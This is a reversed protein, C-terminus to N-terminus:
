LVAQAPHFRSCRKDCRPTYRGVPDPCQGDFRGHSSNTVNAAAASALLESDDDNRAQWSQILAVLM